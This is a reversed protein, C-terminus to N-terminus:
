WGEKVISPGGFIEEEYERLSWGKDAMSLALPREIRGDRKTSPQVVPEDVVPKAYPVTAPQVFSARKYGFFSSRGAGKKKTLYLVPDSAVVVDLYKKVTTLSYRHGHDTNIRVQVDKVTFFL